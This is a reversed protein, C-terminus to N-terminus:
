IKARERIIKNLFQTMSLEGRNANLWAHLDADCHFNFAKYPAAKPRGKPRKTTSTAM